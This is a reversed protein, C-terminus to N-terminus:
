DFWYPISVYVAFRPLILLRQSKISGTHFQFTDDLDTLASLTKAKLRVLISNFCDVSVGYSSSAPGKLRVLISNFGFGSALSTALAFAVKLRVLISNFGMNPCKLFSRNVTRKISGTHFQFM